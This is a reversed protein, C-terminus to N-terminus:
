SGPSAPAPATVAAAPEDRLLETSVRRAVTIRVHAQLDVVVARGAPRAGGGRTRVTVVAARRVHCSVALASALRCGIFDLVSRLVMM